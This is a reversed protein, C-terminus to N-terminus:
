RSPCLSGGESSGNRCSGAKKYGSRVAAAEKKGSGRGLYRKRGRGPRGIATGVMHDPVLQQEGRCLLDKGMLIHTTDWFM